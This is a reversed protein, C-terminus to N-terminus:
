KNKGELVLARANLWAQEKNLYILTHSFFSPILFLFLVFYLFSVIQKAQRRLMNEFSNFLSVSPHIRLMFDKLSYESNRKLNAFDDRVKEYTLEPEGSIKFYSFM